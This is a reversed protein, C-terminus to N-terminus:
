GQHNDLEPFEAPIEEDTISPEGAQDKADILAVSEAVTPPQELTTQQPADDLTGSKRVEDYGNLLNAADGMALSVKKDTEPTELSVEVPLTARLSEHTVSVSQEPTPVQEIVVHHSEPIHYNPSSLEKDLM